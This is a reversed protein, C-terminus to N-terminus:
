MIVKHMLEARIFDELTDIDQVLWRPLIIPMGDEFFSSKNLWTSKKAFYFQGADHFTEILDQSRTNFYEPNIM